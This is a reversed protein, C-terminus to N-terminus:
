CRCSPIAIFTTATSFIGVGGRAPGSTSSDILRDTDSPKKEKEMGAILFSEEEALLSLVKYM